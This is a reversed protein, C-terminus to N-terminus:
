LYLSKTVNKQKKYSKRKKNNLNLTCFLFPGLDGSEPGSREAEVYRKTM